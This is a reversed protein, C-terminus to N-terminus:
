HINGINGLNITNLRDVSEKDYYTTFRVTNIRLDTISIGTNIPADTFMDHYMQQRTLLDSKGFISIWEDFEDQSKIARIKLNYKGLHVCDM